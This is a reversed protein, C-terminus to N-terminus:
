VSIQHRVAKIQIDIVCVCLWVGVYVHVCVCVCVCMCACVCACVCVCVCMCLCVCVCVCSSACIFNLMQLCFCILLVFECFQVLFYNCMFSCMVVGAMSLVVVNEFSASRHLVKGQVM